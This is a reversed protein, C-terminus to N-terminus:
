SRSTLVGYIVACFKTSSGVVFGALKEVELRTRQFPEARLINYM